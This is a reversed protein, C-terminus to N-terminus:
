KSARIMLIPTDTRHRLNEAVSGLLIDKFFRHGHTSMAILDCQEKEAVKLIETAPDGALLFNKVQFGEQTFEKAKEALYARDDKIEESDALDLEQQLRAAYGDAVHVFVLEANTLRALSRIHRLIPLDIPSIDLPILIKRYM